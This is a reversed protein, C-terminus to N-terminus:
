GQQESMLVKKNDMLESVLLGTFILICGIFGFGTIHENIIFYAFISAFIPELSFIISTKVPTVYKQFKTQLTTTIITALISTYLLAFVLNGNSVIDNFNYPINNFFSFIFGGIATVIIQLFVLLWYNYNRSSVRDLYIIYFSFLIACILTLYDGISFTSGLEYIVSLWSDGKSSLLILGFLVLFIGIINGRRPVRKSIIIQLIPTFVVFTGTIFASKTASTTNLGITQLAFGAFYLLGLILGATIAKPNFEKFIKKYFLLFLVGAITFRLFIFTMPTVSSLSDKIFVFTGGWIITNILLAAEGKFKKNIM